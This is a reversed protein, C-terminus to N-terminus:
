SADRLRMLVALAAWMAIAVEADGFTYQTLGGVLFGTLALCGGFAASQTDPDRARRVAEVGFRIATAFVLVFAALGALGAEAAMQLFNNHAHSRRDAAPHRDYYPQAAAQYRGFGLGFVPHEHIIDLNTAFIALRGANTEGETLSPLIQARWGPSLACALVLGAGVIGVRVATRRRAIALIALMTAAALWAGRATSFLLALILLGSTAVARTGGAALAFGLAVVLVHAYTLYNRFFGVSAYGEAGEIRPHVYGPRGVLRHYWDIGTFHQVIGYAAAVSAALLLARVFALAARTDALWWYVGFYAVVIWLKLWGPVAQLPRGSALTSLLLVAAAVGLVTDLPTRRMVPEGRLAAALALLGLGAAGVEMGTTSLPISWATLVLCADAARRLAGARM